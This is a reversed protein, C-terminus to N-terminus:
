LRQEGFLELESTLGTAIGRQTPFTSVKHDRTESGMEKVLEMHQEIDQVEHAYVAPGVCSPGSERDRWGEIACAVLPM